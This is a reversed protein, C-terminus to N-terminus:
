TDKEHVLGILEEDVLIRLFKMVDETCQDQTVEYEEMLNLRLTEVNKPEELLNWISNGIKNLGHYIGTTLDLIVTEGKQETSIRDKMRGFVAKELEIDDWITKDLESM